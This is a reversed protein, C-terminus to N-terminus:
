ATIVKKILAIGTQSPKREKKRKIPRVLTAESDPVMFM